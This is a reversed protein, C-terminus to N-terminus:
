FSRCPSVAAWWPSSDHADIAKPLKVPTALRNKTPTETLAEGPLRQRQSYTRHSTPSRGSAASGTPTHCHRCAMRASFCMTAVALRRGRVQAM